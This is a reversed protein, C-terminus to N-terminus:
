YDRFAVAYSSQIEGSVVAHKCFLILILHMVRPKIGCYMFTHFTKSKNVDIFNFNSGLRFNADQRCLFITEQALFVITMISLIKRIQTGILARRTRLQLAASSSQFYNSAEADM